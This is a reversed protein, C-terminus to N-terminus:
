YYAATHQLTKCHRATDFFLSLLFRQHYARHPCAGEVQRMNAEEVKGIMRCFPIWDQELTSCSKLHTNFWSEISNQQWMARYPGGTGTSMIPEPLHLSAQIKFGPKFEFQTAWGDSASHFLSLSASPFQQPCVRPLSKYALSISNKQRFLAFFRTCMTRASYKTKNQRKHATHLVKVKRTILLNQGMRCACLRNQCAKQRCAVCSFWWDRSFEFSKKCIALQSGKM